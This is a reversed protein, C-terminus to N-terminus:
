SGSLLSIVIINVTDNSKARAAKMQVISEILGYTGSQTPTVKSQM